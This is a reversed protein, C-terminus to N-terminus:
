YEAVRFMWRTASGIVNLLRDQEAQVRPVDVRFNLIGKRGKPKALKTARRKERLVKTRTWVFRPVKKLDWAAGTGAVGLLSLLLAQVVTKKPEPLAGLWSCIQDIYRAVWTGLKEWM